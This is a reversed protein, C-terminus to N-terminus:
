STGKTRVTITAPYHAGSLPITDIRIQQAQGPALKAELLVMSEKSQLIRGPLLKGNVSFIAGSYGASAEFVVEVTQNRDTPNEIRGEVVYQVGFNGSLPPGGLASPIGQEGLRIFQHRGGVQYLFGVQKAPGSFIDRETGGVPFPLGALGISRRVLWPKDGFGQPQWDAAVDALALANGVLVVDDSGGALLRLSALGSSTQGPELRRLSLPTASRPPLTLVTGQYGLWDAFYRNGAEFGAKTPDSNPEADGSALWIRAPVDSRNALIYQVALPRASKNFHHWLLRTPMATVMRAFYLQGPGALNEPNNSYWLVDDYVRGGGSNKVLVNAMGKTTAFGPAEVAVDVPVVRSQGPGLPAIEPVTYRVLAGPEASFETSMAGQIGQLVLEKRAPSGTVEVTLTQPFVAAPSLVSFPISKLAGGASLVIAGEGRKLPNVVLDFGQRTVEVLGPPESSIAASRAASGIVRVRQPQGVGLSLPQGPVTLPPVYLAKNISNAWLEALKDPSLGQAKAEAETVTAVTQGQLVVRLGPDAVVKLTQGRKFPSLAKAIVAVREEPQLGGAATKVTIADVGNVVLIRGSAVIDADSALPVTTSAALALVPILVWGTM